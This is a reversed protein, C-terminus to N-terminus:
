RIQRGHHAADLQFGTLRKCSGPRFTAWANPRSSISLARLWDKSTADLKQPYRESCSAMYISSWLTQKVWRPLSLLFPFAIMHVATCSGFHSRLILVHLWAASKRM